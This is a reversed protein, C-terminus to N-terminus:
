RLWRSLVAPESQAFERIEAAYTEELFSRVEAPMPRRAPDRNSRQELRSHNLRGEIDLFEAVSALFAAPDDVLDDYLLVRFDSGFREAWLPVIRAYDSRLRQSPQRTDQLIAELEVRGIDMGRWRQLMKVASWVREIPNRVILFVRCGPKLVRRAFDVGRGDLTSYAPTIEGALAGNTFEPAFLGNYWRTSLPGLHYRRLWRVTSLSPRALAPRYRDLLGPVPRTEAGLLEENPCVRNFFHIEKVPPMWVSSQVELNDHLWTTGAKQAGIGVFDPGEADRTTM